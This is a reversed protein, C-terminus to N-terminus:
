PRAKRTFVLGACLLAIGAASIMAGFRVSWPRFEYRVDHGGAPVVVGRMTANVRFVSSSVGDVTAEWGPYYMDSLVLVSRTNASTRITVENSRYSIIRADGSLSDGPLFDVSAGAIAERRPDFRPSVLGKLDDLGGGAYVINGVLFARPMCEPNRYIYVDGSRRELPYSEGIIPVPSLVYAVNHMSLLRKFPPRTEIVQGSVRWLQQM